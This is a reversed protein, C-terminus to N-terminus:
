AECASYGAQEGTLIDDDVRDNGVVSGAIGLAIERQQETLVTGSIKARGDLIRVQLDSGGLRPNSLLRDRIELATPTEEATVVIPQDLEPMDPNPVVVATTMHKESM